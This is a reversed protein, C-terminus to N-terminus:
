QQFSPPVAQKKEMAIRVQYEFFILGCFSMVLTTFFNAQVLGESLGEPGAILAALGGFVAFLLSIIPAHHQFGEPANLESFSKKDIYYIPLLIAFTYGIAALSYFFLGLFIYLFIEEGHNISDLSDNFVLLMLLFVSFTIALNKVLALLGVVFMNIKM